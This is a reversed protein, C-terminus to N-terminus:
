NGSAYEKMVLPLYLQVRAQVTVSAGGLVGQESSFEVENILSEACDPEVSVVFTEMWTGGPATIDATWTIGVAGGPLVLTGGSTQDLTVSAPLTDTITANLEVGSFNAVRITYTLQEGPHVPSPEAQKTVLVGTEDAGIDYTNGQPRPQGDIDDNVDADTGNDIAMSTLGVHFDGGGADVFAPDGYRSGSVSFSGYGGVTNGGTEWLTTRLTVSGSSDVWVGGPLGFITNVFTLTATPGATVMWSTNASTNTAVTNHKLMGQSACEGSCAPHGSIGYVRVPSGDQAANLAVVNNVMAFSDSGVIELGGGWKAHNDLITNARLNASSRMMSVGGGAADSAHNSRIVNNEMLAQSNWLYVGGGGRWECAGDAVNNMVMSNGLTPAGYWFAVGGGYEATSSMIRCDTVVPSANYAYIAGGSDSVVRGNRLTFGEIKPSVTGTIYIVRRVNEGDLTTTYIDPLVLSGTGPTGDWGGYLNISETITVVASGTGTYTGQAVFITDGEIAQTMAEDLACPQSVTCDTGSGNVKVFLIGPDAHAVNYTGELLLLLGALLLGGVALSLIVRVNKGM